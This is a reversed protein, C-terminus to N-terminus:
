GNLWSEIAQLGALAGCPMSTGNATRFKYDRPNIRILPCGQSEGFRRASPIAEGAGLEIVVPREVSHRWARFHEQQADTRDSYWGYDGFMMINPRAISGCLECTPLDSVMRCNAEDIEPTFHKAPWINGM